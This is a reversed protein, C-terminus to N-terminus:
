RCLLRKRAGCASATPDADFHLARRLQTLSPARDLRGSEDRYLRCSLNAESDSRAFPDVGDVLLTASGTMGAAAADAESAVVEHIVQVDRGTLLQGLRDTLLEVNPCDPVHLVRVTV